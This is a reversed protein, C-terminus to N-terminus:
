GAAVDRGLLAALRDLAPADDAVPKSAAFPRREPPLQALMPRSFALEAEAITDPVDLPQGTARCLDWGHVLAETTRLHVAVVGPVTGAPMAVPRELVGPAAFADLMATASSAYAAAPDDEPLAGTAPPETDPALARATLRQGAVVHGVLQRVDWEPCPTPSAWQEPRVAGVLRGFADVALTLAHLPAGPM